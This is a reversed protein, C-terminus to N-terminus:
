SMWYVMVYRLGATIPRARHTAFPNGSFMAAHGKQPCIVTEPQRVFSIGGGEFEENLNISISVLSKEDHHSDMKLCTDLTYKILFSNQVKDATYGDFLGALVSNLVKLCVIDRHYKAIHPNLRFLDTEFATYPDGKNEGWKNLRDGEDMLFKCYRDSFLPFSFCGAVPERIHLPFESDDKIHFDKDLSGVLIPHFMGLTPMYRWVDENTKGEFNFFRKRLYERIM